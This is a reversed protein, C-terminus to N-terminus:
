TISPRSSSESGVLTHRGHDRFLYIFHSSKNGSFHELDKLPGIICNNLRKFALTSDGPIDVDNITSPVEAPCDSLGAVPPGGERTNQYNYVVYLDEKGMLYNAEDARM